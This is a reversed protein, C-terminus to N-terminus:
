SATFFLKDPLHSVGIYDAFFGFFLSSFVKTYQVLVFELNCKNLMNLKSWKM